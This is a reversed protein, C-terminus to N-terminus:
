LPTQRPHKREYDRLERAEVDRKCDFFVPPIGIKNEQCEQIAREMAETLYAPEKGALAKERAEKWYRIWVAQFAAHGIPGAMGIERFAVDAAAALERRQEKATATAPSSAFASCLEQMANARHRVLAADARLGSLEQYKAWQEALKPNVLKNGVQEFCTPFKHLFNAVLRRDLGACKAALDTPLPLTGPVDSVWAAALLDIYVGRDKQTMRAVTPSSRWDKAYFQFAPPKARGM